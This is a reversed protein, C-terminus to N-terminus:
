NPKEGTLDRIIFELCIKFNERFAKKGLRVNCLVTPVYSNDLKYVKQVRM